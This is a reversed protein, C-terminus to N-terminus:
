VSTYKISVQARPPRKPRNPDCSGPCPKAPAARQHRPYRLDRINRLDRRDKHFLTPENSNRAKRVPILKNELKKTSRRMRTSDDGGVDADIDSSPINFQGAMDVYFCMPRRVRM